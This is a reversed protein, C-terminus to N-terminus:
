HHFALCSLGLNSECSSGGFTSPFDGKCNDATCAFLMENYTLTRKLSDSCGTLFDNFTRICLRVTCLSGYCCNSTCSVTVPVELIVRSLNVDITSEIGIPGLLVEFTEINFDAVEHFNFSRFGCITTNNFKHINCNEADALGEKFDACINLRIHFLFAVMNCLNCVLSPTKVVRNRLLEFVPNSYCSYRRVGASRGFKLLVRGVCCQNREM